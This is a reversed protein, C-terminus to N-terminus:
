ILFTQHLVQVDRKVFPPTYDFYPVEKSATGEFLNIYFFSAVFNQQEFTIKDFSLKLPDQGDIVIQKDSCCDKKAINCNTNSSDIQIAMACTKAKHFIASDVLTDGCFHMDISFSM